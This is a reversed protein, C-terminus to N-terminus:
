DLIDALMRKRRDISDYVDGLSVEHTVGLARLRAKLGIAQVRGMRAVRSRVEAAVLNRADVQTGPYAANTVLSVDHLARFNKITRVAVRSCDEQEEYGFEDDGEGLEFSFSCSNVDGRKVSERLDRGTQTDPLDCEFELGADTGRLSLTGSTTRGLPIGAHNFLMVVDPNTALIKNFAGRKIREKFNGLSHSLVDYSAARGTVKTGKARLEHVGLIRKEISM